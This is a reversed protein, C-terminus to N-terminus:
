VVVQARIRLVEARLTHAEFYELMESLDHLQDAIIDASEAIDRM